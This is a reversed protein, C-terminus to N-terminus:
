ACMKKISKEEELEGELRDHESSAINVVVGLILNMVAVAVTLYVGMFFFSTWPHAEIVPITATGWADGAVIQQSFTLTSHLVSSYARPCRDCSGEYDIEVNLPHIFLVAVM